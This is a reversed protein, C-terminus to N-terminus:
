PRAGRASPALRVPPTIADGRVLQLTCHVGGNRCAPDIALTVFRHWGNRVFWHRERPTNELTEPLPMPDVAVTCGGSSPESSPLSDDALWVLLHEGDVPVCAPDIDPWRPCEAASAEPGATCRRRAVRTATEVFWVAVRRGAAALLTTRHVPVHEIRAEARRGSVRRVAGRLRELLDHPDDASVPFASPPLPTEGTDVILAVVPDRASGESAEGSGPNVIRNLPNNVFRTSVAYVFRQTRERHFLERHSPLSVHRPLRGLALAGSGCPPDPGDGRFSAPPAGTSPRTDADLPTDTDPCPLHGPGAGNPGYSEPYASVHALLARRADLLRRRSDDVDPVPTALTGALWLAGGGALALVLAPLVGGRQGGGRVRCTM